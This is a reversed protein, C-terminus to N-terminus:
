SSRVDPKRANKEIVLLLRCVINERSQLESTHEESRVREHREVDGDALELLVGAGIGAEGGLGVQEVGVGGVGPEGADPGGVGGAGGGQAGPEDAAVLGGREAETGGAPEGAVGGGGFDGEGGVGGAAGG